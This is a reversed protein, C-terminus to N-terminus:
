LLVEGLNTLIGEKIALDKIYKRRNLLIRLSINVNETLNPRIGVILEGNEGSVAHFVPLLLAGLRYNYQLDDQLLVDDGGERPRAIRCTESREGTKDKLLYHDGAAVRGTYNGLKLRRQGPEAQLEAMRARACEPTAVLVEAIAGALPLGTAADRVAARLRTARDPYPYSPSPLLQVYVVPDGADLEGPVVRIRQPMYAGSEVVVHYEGDPLNVFLYIGGPKRIPKAFQGELAVRTVPQVPPLGTYADLLCVAVSCRVTSVSRLIGM